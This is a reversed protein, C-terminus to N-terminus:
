NAVAKYAGLGVLGLGVAFFAIRYWNEGSTLWDFANGISGLAGSVGDAAGAIGGILGGPNDPPNKINGQADIKSNPQVGDYLAVLARSDINQLYQARGTQIQAPSGQIVNFHPNYAIAKSQAVIAKDESPYKTAIAKRIDAYFGAKDEDTLFHATEDAAATPSGYHTGPRVNLPNDPPGGEAAEWGLATYFDLGPLDKSLRSAFDITAQTTNDAM